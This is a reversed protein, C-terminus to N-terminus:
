NVAHDPPTDCADDVTDFVQFVTDLGTVSLVRRVGASAAALRVEGGGDRVRRLTGVLVGLGSSDIFTLDTLDLVVFAPPQSTADLLRARLAPAAVLDAEGGISLVAWELLGSV